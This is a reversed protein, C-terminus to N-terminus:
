LGMEQMAREVDEISINLMRSVYLPTFVEMAGSRKDMDILTEIQKKLEEM